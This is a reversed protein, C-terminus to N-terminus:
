FRAVDSGVDGLLDELSYFEGSRTSM